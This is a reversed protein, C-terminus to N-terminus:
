WGEGPTVYGTASGTGVISALSDYQESVTITTVQGALVPYDAVTAARATGNVSDYAYVFMDVAGKNAIRWQKNGKKVSAVASSTGVTLAVTAGYRPAFPQKVTM